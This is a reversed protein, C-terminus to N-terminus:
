SDAHAEAGYEEGIFDRYADADLTGAEVDAQALGRVADQMAEPVAGFARVGRQISRWYSKAIANM